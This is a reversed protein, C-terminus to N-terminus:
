LSLTKCVHYSHLLSKYSCQSRTSDRALKPKLLHFNETEKKYTIYVRNMLGLTCSVTFLNSGM